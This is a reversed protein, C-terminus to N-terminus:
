ESLVFAPAKKATAKLGKGPTFVPAEANVTRKVAQGMKVAAAEPAEPTTFAYETFEGWKGDANQAVAVAYYSTSAAVQYADTHEEYFPYNGEETLLSAQIEEKHEEYTAKDYVIIHYVATQDNPTFTIYQSPAKIIGGQGDPWDEIKFDGLTVTVKAEGSGGLKATTVDLTQIPAYTDAADLPQVYVRYDTNPNMDEWTFDGEETLNAGFQKVMDGHNKFGMMPGFMNYQQEFLDPEMALVYFSKVDKNPTFHVTFTRPAVDTASMDVNPEGVLPIQPTTTQVKCVSCPTRYQDYGVTVITYDTNPEIPDTGKLEGDTFDQSYFTPEYTSVYNILGADSLRNATVSPLYAVQFAVCPATRTVKIYFAPVDMDTRLLELDAAVRGEVTPFMVSDLSEVLYGRPDGGKPYIVMRNPNTQAFSILSVLAFLLPLIIKKM